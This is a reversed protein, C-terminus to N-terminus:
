VGAPSSPDSRLHDPVVCVYRLAVSTFIADGAMRDGERGDDRLSLAPGTAPQLCPSLGVLEVGAVPGNVDVELRFTAVGDARVVGPITEWGRVPAPFGPLFAAANRACAVVALGLLLSRFRM